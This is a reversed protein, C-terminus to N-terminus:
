EGIVKKINKANKGTVVSDTRKTRNARASRHTMFHHSAANGRLIKGSGTVKTRKAIGKHTKLKPM